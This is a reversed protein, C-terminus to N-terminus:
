NGSLLKLLKKFDEEFNNSLPHNKKIKDRVISEKYGLSVLSKLLDSEYDNEHEKDSIIVGKLDFIIKKATKLGIGPIKTLIDVNEQQINSFLTDVDYHSLINIAAKAGIGGVKQLELFGKKTKESIFGYLTMNDEKHVLHTYLMVENGVKDANKGLDRSTCFVEYGVGQVDLLLSSTKIAFIQGRLFGILNIDM